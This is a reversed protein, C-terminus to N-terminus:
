NSITKTHISVTSLLHRLPNHAEYRDASVFASSPLFVQNLAKIGFSYVYHQCGSEKNQLKLFCGPEAGPGEM